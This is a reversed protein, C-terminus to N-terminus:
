DSLGSQNEDGKKDMNSNEMLLLVIRGLTSEKLTMKALDLETPTAIKGGAVIQEPRRGTLNWATCLGDTLIHSRLLITKNNKKTKKRLYRIIDNICTLCEM